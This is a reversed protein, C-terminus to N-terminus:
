LVIQGNVAFGRFGVVVSRVGWERGESVYSAVGRRLVKKKRGKSTSQETSLSPCLVSSPPATEPHVEGCLEPLFNRGSIQMFFTLVTTALIIVVPMKMDQSNM